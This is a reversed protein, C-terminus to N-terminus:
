LSRYLVELLKVEALTDQACYVKLDGYISEKEKESVADKICKLYMLSATEGDGIALDDYNLDPVFAPLVSKLSASGNMQPHYLYRSRFPILLDRMRNSISNLDPRCEPFSDGLENNIRNEFAQNYVIVSGNTECGTILHRIFGPRPDDRGTHLFSVHELPGSPKRQIHLSFQFPIQQFPRSRDFLPVAPSITEYDLFYLPYELQDLWNRIMSPNTYVQNTHCADIAIRQRETADFGAPIDRVDLINAALLADLRPGSPFINQM